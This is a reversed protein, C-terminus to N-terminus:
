LLMMRKRSDVLREPEVPLPVDRPVAGLSNLPQFLNCVRCVRYSSDKKDEFFYCSDPDPPPYCSSEASPFTAAVALERKKLLGAKGRKDAM